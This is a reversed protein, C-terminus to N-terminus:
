KIIEGEVLCSYNVIPIPQIHMIGTKVELYGIGFGLSWDRLAKVKHMYDIEKVDGLWGLMATVHYEGQANGEVAYGLRHTHGIVVSHQFADLAKYHAFRGAVGVDHTFNIKGLKYSHKYPVYEWGNKKLDFVKELSLLNYLEPATKKLYRELRDSHNGAIFVNNKAKLAKIQALAKKTEEIEFDLKLARNPDKDHSSVAYFDAFDGLLICHDPKLLKGVKLFLDFAKKDHYPVHVDPCILVKEVEKKM